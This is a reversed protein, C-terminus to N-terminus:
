FLSNIFSSLFGESSKEVREQSNLEEERDEIKDKIEVRLNEENSKEETLETTNLADYSSNDLGQSLGLAAFLILGLVLFSLKGLEM